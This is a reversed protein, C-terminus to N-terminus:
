SEHKHESEDMLRLIHITTIQFLPLILSQVHYVCRQVISMITFWTMIKSNVIDIIEFSVDSYNVFRPAMWRAEYIKDFLSEWRGGTTRLHDHQVM